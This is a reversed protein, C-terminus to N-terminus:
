GWQQVGKRKNRGKEIKFACREILSVIGFAVRNRRLRKMKYIDTAYRDYDELISAPLLEELYRRRERLITPRSSPRESLGTMDFVTVDEDIYEVDVGGIVIADLFWKWDSCIKMSEDYTGYKEFLSKKVYASDHNLSGSYMGLMTIRQGNFSKDRVMRGDPFRKIMNGYLISPYQLTELKDLVTQLVDPGALVDGSNLIQVYDGTAMCIGKNMANYIGSDSESIWALNDGFSQAMDQIVEVSCDTSAGDVVVYEFHLCRQDLVSQMTKRLGCANNLNITIVTIKM